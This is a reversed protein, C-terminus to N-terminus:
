FRNVNGLEVLARFTVLVGSTTRLRTALLEKINEKVKGAM